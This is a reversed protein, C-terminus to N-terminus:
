HKVKYWVNAIVGDKGFEDVARRVGDHSNFDHGCLIGGSRVHPWWAEVDAKVSEYEHNADIFVLDATESMLGAAVVSNNVRIGVKNKIPHINRLFQALVASSGIRKATEGLHDEPNGEFTDIVVVHDFLEGLRLTTMGVWCGVEICCERRERGLFREVIESIADRDEIPTEHGLWRDM